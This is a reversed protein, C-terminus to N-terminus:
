GKFTFRTQFTHKTYKDYLDAHDAKFAKSDFRSAKVTKSMAKMNDIEIPDTGLDAMAMIIQEPLENEQKELLAKAKKIENMRELAQKLETQNM